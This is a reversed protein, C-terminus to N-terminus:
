LRKLGANLAADDLKGNASEFYSRVTSAEVHRNGEVVISAASQAYLQQSSAVLLVVVAVAITRARTAAFMLQATKTQRM